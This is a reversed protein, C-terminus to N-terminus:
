NTEAACEVPPLHQGKTGETRGTESCRLSLLDPLDEGLGLAESNEGEHGDGPGPAEMPPVREERGEPRLLALAM